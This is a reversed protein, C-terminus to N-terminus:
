WGNQSSSFFVYNNLTTLKKAQGVAKQRKKNNHSQLIDVETIVKFADLQIKWHSRWGRPRDLKMLTSGFPHNGIIKHIELSENNTILPGRSNVRSYQNLISFILPSAYGQEEFANRCIFVIASCSWQLYSSYDSWLTGLAFLYNRSNCSFFM